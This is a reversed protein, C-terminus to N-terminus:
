FMVFFFNKTKQIVLVALIIEKDNLFWTPQCVTPGHSTFLRITLLEQPLTNLWRTYRVTSNRPNRIVQSGIIYNTGVEINKELQLRLREPLMVDDSDQICLYEGGSMSLARNRAGGPCLPSETQGNQGILLKWKRDEIDSRYSEIKNLSSDSCSDDWVCIEVPGTHDQALISNMLDPIWKQSNHVPIIISIKPIKTNMERFGSRIRSLKRFNMEKFEDRTFSEGM